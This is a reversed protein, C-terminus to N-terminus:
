RDFGSIIAFYRLWPPGYMIWLKAIGYLTFDFILAIIQAAFCAKPKSTSTFAMPSATFSSPAILNRVSMSYIGIWILSFAM